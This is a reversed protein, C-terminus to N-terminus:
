CNTIHACAHLLVVMKASYFTYLISHPSLAERGQAYGSNENYYSCTDSVLAVRIYDLLNM